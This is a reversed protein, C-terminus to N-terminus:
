SSARCPWASAGCARRSSSSNMSRKASTPGASSTTPRRASSAATPISRRTTQGARDVGVRARPRSRRGSRPPRGGAARRARSAKRRAPGRRSRWLLSRPFAHKPSSKRERRPAGIPSRPRGSARPPRRPSPATESRACPGSRSLGDARPPSGFSSRCRSPRPPRRPTAIPFVTANSPRGAFSPKSRGRPAPLVAACFRLATM